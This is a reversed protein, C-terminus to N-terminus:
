IDGGLELLSLRLEHDVLMANIDDQESPVPPQPEPEPPLEEATWKTLTMVGDIEEAELDGYPFNELPLMTDPVLCYGDPVPFIAPTMSYMTQNSHGGDERKLIKVITM